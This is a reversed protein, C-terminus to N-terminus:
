RNSPSESIPHPWLLVGRERGWPGGRSAARPQQQQEEHQGIAALLDEEDSQSLDVSYRPGGPSRPLPVLETLNMYSLLCLQLGDLCVM